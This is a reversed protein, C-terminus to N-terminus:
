AAVQEPTSRVRYRSPHFDCSTDAPTHGFLAVCRRTHACHGCTKDPPLRMEAAYDIEEM